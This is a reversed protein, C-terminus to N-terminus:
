SPKKLWSIRKEGEVKGFDLPFGSSKDIGEIQKVGALLRDMDNSSKIQAYVLLDPSEAVSEVSKVGAIRGIAKSVGGVKRADVRVRLYVNLTQPPIYLRRFGPQDIVM